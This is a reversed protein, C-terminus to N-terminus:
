CGKAQSAGMSHMRGSPAFVLLAHSASMPKSHVQLLYGPTPFMNELAGTLDQSGSGEGQRRSLGALGMRLTPFMWLAGAHGVKPPLHLTPLINSSLSPQLSLNTLAAQRNGRPASSFNMKHALFMPPLPCFPPWDGHLPTSPHCLLASLSSHQAFLPWLLGPVACASGTGPTVLAGPRQQIVHAEHRVPRCISGRTSPKSEPRHTM